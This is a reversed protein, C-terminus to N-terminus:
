AGEVAAVAGAGRTVCTFREDYPFGAIMAEELPGRWAAGARIM